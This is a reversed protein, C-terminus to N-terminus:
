RFFILWMLSTFFIVSCPYFLALPGVESEMKLRVLFVRVVFSLAIAIALCLMWVPFFSGIIDINPAHGCGTLLLCLGTFAAQSHRIPKM